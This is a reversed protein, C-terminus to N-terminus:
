SAPSEPAAPAAFLDAQVPRQAPAPAPAAPAEPEPASEEAVPEPTPEPAPEPEPASVEAELQAAHEVALREQEAAFNSVPKRQLREVEAKAEATRDPAPTTPFVAGLKTSLPASEPTASEQKALAAALKREAKEVAAAAAAEQKRLEGVVRNANTLSERLRDVEGQLQLTNDPRAQIAALEGRVKSLENELAFTKERQGKNAEAAKTNLANLTDRSKRLEAELAAIRKQDGELRHQADSFEKALKEHAAKNISKAQLHEMQQKIEKQASESKALAHELKKVRERAPLDDPAAPKASSVVPAHFRTRLWWGFYAFIAATFVLLPLIKLFFWLNGANM